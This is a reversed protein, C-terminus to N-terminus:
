QHTTSSINELHEILKDMSEFSGDVTNKPDNIEDLLKQSAEMTFGNEDRLSLSLRQERVFQSLQMNVVNSLNTGMKKALDQANKKVVSDIRVSTTSAPM